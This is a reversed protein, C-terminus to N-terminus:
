IGAKSLFAEAERLDKITDIPMWPDESMYVSIDGGMKSFVDAELSGKIPLHSEIRRCILYIGANVWYPLTPKEKFEELVGDSFKVIGYPSRFPVVVITATKGKVRHYGEVRTLDVNSIIDGNVVFFEDNLTRKLALKLAGGTGLKKDEVSLDIKVGLDNSKVYSDIRESLHGCSIVVRRVGHKKLWAIQRDLIPVGRVKVLIKPVDQTLPGLREGLGGALIVAEVIEGLISV